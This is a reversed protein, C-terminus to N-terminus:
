HRLMPVLSLVLLVALTVNIIRFYRPDNMVGKLVAGFGAWTLASTVGM